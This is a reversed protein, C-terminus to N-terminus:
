QRATVFVYGRNKNETQLNDFLNQLQEGTFLQDATLGSVYVQQPTSTQTATAQSTKSSASSGGGGGGSMTSGAKFAANAAILAVQATGYAQIKAAAPPGLVPGLEALAKVSAAATNQITESIRLATNVALAAIAAAKSKTGFATLLSSLESYMGSQASKIMESEQQKIQTYQQSYDQQLRLLAENKGGIIELEKDSAKQVLDLNDKYKKDLAEKPSMLSDVLSNIANDAKSGGGKGKKSTDFNGTTIVDGQFSSPRQGPRPSSQPANPSLSGMGGISPLKMTGDGPPIVADAQSAMMAQQTAAASKQAADYLDGMAKKANSLFDSGADMTLLEGLVQKTKDVWGKGREVEKNLKVQQDYVKMLAQLQDGLVGNTKANEEFEKRAIDAKKAYVQYSDEGYKLTLQAIAVQDQQSVIQKQDYELQKAKLQNVREQAEAVKETAAKIQDAMVDPGANGPGGYTKAYETAKQISELQKELASLTNQADSLSQGGFMEEVTIGAKAAQKTQVWSKLTSNISKIQQEMDSLSKKAKDTDTRTRMWAAGVATVLPIVVGLGTAWGLLATSSLGLQTAFMPLVAVAQTAQQGFAVMWNTGSQVQVLFDGMQYGLQQTALGMRNMGKNSIILQQQFRNTSSAAGNTFTQYELDLKQLEAKYQGSTIAGLRQATQIENLSSEYLKSARYVGNYKMSLRDIEKELAGYGAGSQSATAGSVGLKSNYYKQMATATKQAQAEQKRMSEIALQQEKAFLKSARTTGDLSNSYRDIAAKATQWHQYQGDIGQRLQKLGLTYQDNTIKGADVAEKLLKIGRELTNSAKVAKLM